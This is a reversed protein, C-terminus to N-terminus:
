GPRRMPQLRVPVTRHGNVLLSAVPELEEPPVALAMDPFGDFLAPLAARAEARALPAGLCFHAGHGFALHQKDERIVDFAGATAGHLNPHRSAAGYSALIAEGQSIVIGDPLPIDEVAYRLPLHSIPAAYRLSEEIVDDWSARGARVHALQEPRTLLATVAQDLLNVTTEYGASIILLLTDLLEQETLVSGDGEEDRVDILTSTIDEGPTVRKLAVLETLIGYLAMTNARAEESSLTTDFVGDVVTRFRPWVDETLGMLDGIVQIPLPFALAERLEVVEGPQTRAIRDILRATIQEIRPVMEATRRATFAKSVLRRLRRHNDGYATFMNDVGVWLALPWKETIEGSIFAPWHRSADKSVRADNLLGKLVAADSVSWATVGLIDVLTAPGAAHLADEEAARARGTPDLVLPLTRDM